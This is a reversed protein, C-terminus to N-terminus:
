LATEISNMPVHSDCIACGTRMGAYNRNAEKTFLVLPDSGKGGKRYWPTDKLRPSFNHTYKSFGSM